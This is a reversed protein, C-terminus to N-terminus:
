GPCCAYVSVGREKLQQALVRSYTAECLKSVGYM